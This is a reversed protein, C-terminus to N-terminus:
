DRFNTYQLAIELNAEKLMSITAQLDDRKKGTVRVKDGQISSQVKLKADKILKNIQKATPQDIGQKVTARMVAEHLSKDIEGFDLSKVDIQRKVLKEVLIDKMQKVQFDNPAKLAIANDGEREFTAGSDKFDFRNTIERNAQDIANTLEHGDVESVVDFSPM